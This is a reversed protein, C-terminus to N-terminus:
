GEEPTLAFSPGPSEGLSRLKEIAIENEADIGLAMRLRRIAKEEDGAALYFDALAIQPEVTQGGDLRAATLLSRQALDADGTEIAYWGLRLYDGVAQTDDARLQLFSILRDESDAEYMAECFKRVIEDNAPRVGHLIAYQEEAQSFAGLEMLTDAYKERYEWDNPDREVVEAYDASAMEFRETAYARDADRRVISLARQSSCGFPAVFLICLFLSILTRM